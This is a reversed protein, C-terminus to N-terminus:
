KNVLEPLLYAPDILKGEHFLELHLHPGTSFGTSGVTGIVTQVTVQEGMNVHIKSFHGYLSKFGAGHDITINNGYGFWSFEAKEVRGDMIPYVPTGSSTALDAGSHFWSFGRSLAFREVPLRVTINTKIPGSNIQPNTNIVPIGGINAALTFNPLTAAFLIFGLVAGTLTRRLSKVSRIKVIKEGLLSKGSRTLGFIKKIPM